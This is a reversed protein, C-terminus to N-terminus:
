CVGDESGPCQDAGISATGPRQDYGEGGEAGLPNSDDIVDNVELWLGNQVLTIYTPTWTYVIAPEGADAQNRGRCVNRRLRRHDAQHEGM